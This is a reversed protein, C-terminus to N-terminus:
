PIEAMYPLGPVAPATIEIEIKSRDARHWAEYYELPRGDALFSISEIKLLPSGKKVELFTTMPSTALVAEVVRMGTVVALGAQDRLAAYLSGSSLDTDLLTPCLFSPIYTQVFVIVSGNVSRLRDIKIVRDQEHLGLKQRVH